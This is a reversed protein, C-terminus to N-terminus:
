AVQGPAPAAERLIACFVLGQDTTVKTISADLALERGDRALGRIAARQGMLRSPSAEGAFARMFREHDVRFREPLLEALPRGTLEGAGYGFLREAAPNAYSVRLSEDVNVIGDACIALVRAALRHAARTRYQRAQEETVDALMVLYCVPETPLAGVRVRLAKDSGDRARCWLRVHALEPAEPRDAWRRLWALPDLRNREHEPLFTVITEGVPTEPTALIADALANGAVIVGDGDIVLAAEPLAGLLGPGTLAEFKM